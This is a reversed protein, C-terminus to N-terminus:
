NKSINQSIMGCRIVRTLGLNIRFYPVILKTQDLNNISLNFEISLKTQQLKINLIMPLIKLYGYLPTAIYKKYKFIM